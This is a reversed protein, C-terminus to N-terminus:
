SARKADWNPVLRHVDIFQKNLNVTWFAEVVYEGCNMGILASGFEGMRERGAVAKRHWWFRGHNWLDGKHTSWVLSQKSYNRGFTVPCFIWIVAIKRGYSVPICMPHRLIWSQLAIGLFSQNINTNLHTKWYKDLSLDGGTGDIWSQPEGHFMRCPFNTHKTHKNKIKALM